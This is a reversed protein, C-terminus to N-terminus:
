FAYGVSLEGDIGIPLLTLLANMTEEADRAAATDDEATARHHGWGLGFRATINVADGLMWRKGVNGTVMTSRIQMPYSMEQNGSSVTVEGTGMSQHAMVGLFGSDQQGSWHWRYGVGVGGQLQEADDNSSRALAAEVILGHRGQHLYEYNLALSGAVLGLPSLNISHVRPAASATLEPAAGESPTAAPQAVAVSTISTLAIATFMSRTPLTKM